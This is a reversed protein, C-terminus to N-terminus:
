WDQEGSAPRKAADEGSKSRSSSKSDSEKKPKEKTPALFTVRKRLGLRVYTSNIYLTQPPLGRRDLLDNKIPHKNSTETSLELFAHSNDLYGRSEFRDLSLGATFAFSLLPRWHNRVNSVRFDGRHMELNYSGAGWNIGWGIYGAEGQIFPLYFSAYVQFEEFLYEISEGYPPAPNAARAALQILPNSSVLPEDPYNYLAGRFVRAPKLVLSYAVFELIPWEGVLPLKSPASNVTYYATPIFRDYENHQRRNSANSQKGTRVFSELDSEYTHFRVDGAEVGVAVEVTRFLGELTSCAGAFLCCAVLLGGVRAVRACSSIAVRRRFSRGIPGTM